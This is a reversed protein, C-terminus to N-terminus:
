KDSMLRFEVIVALRIIESYVIYAISLV